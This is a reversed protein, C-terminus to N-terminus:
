YKELLNYISRKDSFHCRPINYKIIVIKNYINGEDSLIVSFIYITNKPRIYIDKTQFYSM